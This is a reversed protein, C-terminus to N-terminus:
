DTTTSRSPVQGAPASPNPPRVDAFPDMIGRRLSRQAAGPEAPAVAADGRQPINARARRVGDGERGLASGRSVNAPPASPLGRPRSTAAQRETGADPQLKLHVMVRGNQDLPLTAREVQYGAKRLEFTADETTRDLDLALPTQGLPERGDVAWVEAGPPDSVFAVNVKSPLVNPPPAVPTTAIARGEDPAPTLMLGAFAGALVVAAAAVGVRWRWSAPAPAPPPPPPLSFQETRICPLLRRHVESMTAPRDDRDKALCDLVLKKLEPPVPPLSDPRMHNLDRPPETAHLIIFDESTDGEFPLDGSLMEFLMVGLAYIDVRHDISRGRCQEPSLYAPTGVIHGAATDLPDEAGEAVRQAEALKAAGFDLVKVFDGRGDHETLFVNGPKLDRHIIGAEHAAAVAGAVQVALYVAREVPLAGGNDVIFRLDTGKLLEMVFFFVGREQDEVFDTIEVIHDHDVQNAARAEAFFRRVSEPQAAHKPHLMKLAVRRTLRVHVAEYVVGMGGEAIPGVIRYSGIETGPALDLEESGRPTADKKGEACRTV